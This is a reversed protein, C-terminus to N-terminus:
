LRSKWVFRGSALFNWAVGAFIAILNAVYLNFGFVTHLFHLVGIAIALGVSCVMNFRFFRILVAAFGSSQGRCNRFTWVDNWIFNNVMATEAAFLKALTLPIRLPFLEVFFFLVLM